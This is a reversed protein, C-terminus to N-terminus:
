RPERVVDHEVTIEVDETVGNGILLPAKVTVRM